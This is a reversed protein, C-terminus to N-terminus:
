ITNIVGTGVQLKDKVFREYIDQREISSMRAHYAAADVGHELLTQVVEEATNETQCFVITSRKRGEVFSELDEWMTEKRLFIFDLNPRDFGTSLMKPNRMGMNACIDYRVRVTAVTTVALIPVSPAREKIKNIKCYGPRYDHGWESVCHAEDIAIMTLKSALHEVLDVYTTIYEPSMYVIRYEGAWIKDLITCDTQASDLYCSPISSMKVKYQMLRIQPSVVFTIGQQFVSPFQFCLSKGNENAVVACVDRRDELITRIITWQFPRFATHGFHQKLCDLYIAQPVSEPSPLETLQEIDDIEM